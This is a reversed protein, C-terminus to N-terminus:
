AKVANGKVKSFISSKCLWYNYHDSTDYKGKMDAVRSHFVFFLKNKLVDFDNENLILIM